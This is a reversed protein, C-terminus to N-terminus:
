KQKLSYRTAMDVTTCIRESKIGSSKQILKQKCHYKKVGKRKMHFIELYDEQSAFSSINLHLLCNYLSYLCTPFSTICLLGPVM